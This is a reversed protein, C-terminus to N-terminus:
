VATMTRKGRILRFASHSIQYEEETGQYLEQIVVLDAGREVCKEVALFTSDKAKGCNAQRVKV